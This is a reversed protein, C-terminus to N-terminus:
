SKSEQEAITVVTKKLGQDMHDDNDFIAVLLSGSMNTSHLFFDAVEDDADDDHWTTLISDNDEEYGDSSVELIVDDIFDHLSESCKGACVFYKCGCSILSKVLPEIEQFDAFNGQKWSTLLVVSPTNEISSLEDLAQNKNTILLTNSNNLPAILM